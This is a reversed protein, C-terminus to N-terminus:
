ATVTDRDPWQAKLLWGTGRRGELWPGPWSLFDAGAMALGVADAEDDTIRALGQAPYLKAVAKRMDDKSANGRGTVYAKLTSPNLIGVPVENLILKNIVLWRLGAREDPQGLHIGNAPGEIVVLKTTVKVLGCFWVAISRIRGHVDLLDPPHGEKCQHHGERCPPPDTKYVWHDVRGTDDIAAAGTSTLSFDVGLVHASM